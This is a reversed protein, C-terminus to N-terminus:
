FEQKEESTKLKSGTFPDIWIDAQAQYLLYTPVLIVIPTLVMQTVFRAYNTVILVVILFFITDDHYNPDKLFYEDDIKDRFSLNLM